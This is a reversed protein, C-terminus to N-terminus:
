YGAYRDRAPPPSMGRNMRKTAWTILMPKAVNFAIKLLALGIGAMGAREAEVKATAKAKPRPAAKKRRPPLRSIILGFLAAGGLWVGRHGVFSSKLKKPFDLDNALERRNATLRSRTRDIQAILAAKQDDVNAM